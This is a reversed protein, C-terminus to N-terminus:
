TEVSTELVCDAREFRAGANWLEAETAARVLGNETEFEKLVHAASRDHLVAVVDSGMAGCGKAARVGPFDGLIELLTATHDAVRGRSELVKGFGRVSAILRDADVLAFSQVADDVWSRMEEIASEDLSPVGALHTHTAMKKGTMYLSLSLDPFPWDYRRMEDVRGDWVAAGGTVQSVLDAGSGLAKTAWYDDLLDRFRHSGFRESNWNPAVSERHDQLSGVVPVETSWEAKRTLWRKFFWAGAFEATSAGLGGKGKYPDKFQISYESGAYPAEISNLWRGAPSAEHFPHHIYSSAKASGTKSAQKSSVAGADREWTFEFCPATNLVISPGGELALYEGVLFTKGPILIQHRTSTRNGSDGSDTAPPGEM